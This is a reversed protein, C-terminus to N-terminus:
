EHTTGGTGNEAGVSRPILSGPVWVVIIACLVYVVTALSVPVIYDKPDYEHKINPSYITDNNSEGTSKGLRSVIEEYEEQKKPLRFQYFSFATAPVFGAIVLVAIGQMFLRIMEESNM